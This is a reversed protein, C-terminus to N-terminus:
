GWNDEKLQCGVERGVGLYRKSSHMFSFIVIRVPTFEKQCIYSGFMCSSNEPNHLQWVHLFFERPYKSLNVSNMPTKELRPGGADAMVQIDGKGLPMQLSDSLVVLRFTPM